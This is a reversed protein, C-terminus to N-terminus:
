SSDRLTQLVELIQDAPLETDACVADVAEPTCGGVFVSLRRFLVHESAGLLDHSWAFAGRLTQHRAPRDRPGGTLMPLRRDLRRALDEPTLFDLRAAALEIALPLGELRRCIVAVAAANDPSVAFDPSAVRAREVFLRVAASEAMALVDSEDDPMPTALPEVSFRREAGRRLVARSTVLLALRPCAELLDALLPAADAVHEFNDLVLLVQTDRLESLLLDHASRGASEHVELVRAITAPVLRPESVQALDVFAVGGDFQPALATAVALALSTKGVGG